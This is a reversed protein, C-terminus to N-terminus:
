ELEFKPTFRIKGGPYVSPDSSKKLYTAHDIERYKKDRFNYFTVPQPTTSNIEVCEISVYDDCRAQMIFGPLGRLKWPGADVPIDPSFWVSWHRGRYDTEAKICQYGLIQKTNDENIVWSFKPVDEKVIYYSGFISTCLTVKASDLGYYIYDGWGPGKDTKKRRESEPMDLEAITQNIEALAALRAAEKDAEYLSDRKFGEMQFYSSSTKGVRLYFYCSSKDTQKYIVNLVAPEIIHTKQAKAFLFNFLLIFLLYKM